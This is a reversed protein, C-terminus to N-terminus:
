LHHSSTETVRREGQALQGARWGQFKFVADAGAVLSAPGAKVAFALAATFFFFSWLACFGFEIMLWPIVHFKEIAHVLYMVLLILSVWFATMATFIFWEGIPQEKLHPPAAMACVFCVLSLTIGALKLLGPIARIYTPDWRLNTGM